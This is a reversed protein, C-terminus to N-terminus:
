QDQISPGVDWRYSTAAPPQKPGELPPPAVELPLSTWLLVHDTLGQLAFDDYRVVPGTSSSLM